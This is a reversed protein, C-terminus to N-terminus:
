ETNTSDHTHLYHGQSPSIGRELLGVSQSFIMFSFIPWPGAFPQLAMSLYELYYYLPTLGPPMHCAHSSYSILATNLRFVRCFSDMQSIWVYILNFNIKIFYYTVANVPNMHSLIHVTQLMQSCPVSGELEM